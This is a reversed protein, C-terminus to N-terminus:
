KKLCNRKGFKDKNKRVINKPHGKTSERNQMDGMNYMLSVFKRGGAKPLSLTLYIRVINIQLGNYKTAFEFIESVTLFTLIEVFSPM